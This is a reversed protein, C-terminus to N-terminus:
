LGFDDKGEIVAKSEEWKKRMAQRSSTKRKIEAELIFCLLMEQDSPAMNGAGNEKMTMRSQMMTNYQLKLFDIVRNRSMARAQELYVDLEKQLDPDVKKGTKKAYEFAAIADPPAEFFVFGTHGTSREFRGNAAGVLVEAENDKVLYAEGYNYSRTAWSGEIVIKFNEEKYVLDPNVMFPEIDVYPQFVKSIPCLSIIRKYQTPMDPIMSKTSLMMESSEQKTIPNSLPMGSNIAEARMEMAKAMPAKAM